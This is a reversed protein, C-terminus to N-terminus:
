KLYSYVEGVEFYRCEIDPHQQAIEEALVEM